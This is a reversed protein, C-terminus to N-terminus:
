QVRDVVYPGDRSLDVGSLGNLILRSVRRIREAPPIDVLEKVILRLRLAPVDGSTDSINHRMLSGLPVDGIKARAVEYLSADPMVVNVSCACEPTWPYHTRLLVSGVKM